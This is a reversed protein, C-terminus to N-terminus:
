FVLFCNQMALQNLREPIGRTGLHLLLGVTLKICAVYVKLLKELKMIRLIRVIELGM